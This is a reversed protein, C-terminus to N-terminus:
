VGQEKAEPHHEKVWETWHHVEFRTFVAHGVVLAALVALPSLSGLALAAAVFLMVLVYRIIIGQKPHEKLTVTKLLLEGALWFLLGGVLLRLTEFSIPPHPAESISREFGASLLTLGLSLFLHFYIYPQGAGFSGSYPEAEVYTFYVWWLSVLLAFALVGTLLSPTELHGEAMHSVTGLISEGMIIIILLGLREPIHATDLPADQLRNRGIIPAVFDVALGIGWLWLHISPLFLSLIWLAAGAGFGIFYVQILHRTEPVHRYARAYQALLLLRAAIFSLAFGTWGEGYVTPVMLAMGAVALMMGFTLLRHLTDDTDFRTNYVTHGIWVWWVPVVLAAIRVVQELSADELLQRGFEFVAVAFVLDFFLETWTARREGEEEEQKHLRPPESGLNLM